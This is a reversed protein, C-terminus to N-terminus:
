SIPVTAYIWPTSYGYARHTSNFKAMHITCRSLIALVDIFFWFFIVKEMFIKGLQVIGIIVSHRIDCLFM